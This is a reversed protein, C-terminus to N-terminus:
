SCRIKETRLLNNNCPHLYIFSSYMNKVIVKTAPNLKIVFHTLALIVSCNIM